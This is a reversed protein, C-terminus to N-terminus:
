TAPVQLGAVPAHEFGLLASPTPHSSPLAQVWLSAQWAPIQVPLLGITHVAWSWHWATPTQLGAVPTHEFGAFAFPAAHSSPLGHV